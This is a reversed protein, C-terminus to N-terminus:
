YKEICQACTHTTTRLTDNYNPGSNGQKEKKDKKKKITYTISKKEREGM